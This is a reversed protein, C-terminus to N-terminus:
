ASLSWVKVPMTDSQSPNMTFAAIANKEARIASEIIPRLDKASDSKRYVELKAMHQMYFSVINLNEIESGYNDIDFDINPAPFVISKPMLTKVQNPQEAGVCSCLMDIGYGIYALLHRYIETLSDKTLEDKLVGAQILQNVKCRAYIIHAVNQYKDWTKKMSTTNRRRISIGEVIEVRTAEGQVYLYTDQLSPEKDHNFLYYAQHQDILCDIMQGIALVDFEAEKLKENYVGAVRASNLMVRIEDIKLDTSKNPESIHEAYRFNELNIRSIIMKDRLEKDDPFDSYTAIIQINRMLQQVSLHEGAEMEEMLVPRISKAIEDMQQQSRKPTKKKSRESWSPPQQSARKSM